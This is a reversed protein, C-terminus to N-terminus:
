GEKREVLEAAGDGDGEAPRPRPLVRKGNLSRAQQNRLEM